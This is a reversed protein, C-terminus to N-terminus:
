AAGKLQDAEVVDAGAVFLRAIRESSAPTLGVDYV